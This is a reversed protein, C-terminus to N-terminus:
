APEFHILVSGIEPFASHLAKEIRQSADHIRGLPLERRGEVHAVVALSGGASSVLVEHCDIVDPEELAIRRVAETIDPRDRTVDWGISTSELPEIHTDVRVKGSLESAVSREIQDSLGHAQGLSIDPDAKAHLTVHLGKGGDDEVERILVNHVENVGDIRSAAAQVREVLDSTESAPEVHVVVDAGPAVREIRREVREAIDHARELSSTRGASVTVDTFLRSGSGRVRVRRAEAVGPTAAAAAIIATVPPPARDMLVDVSRKGLRVVGVAVAAAVVLAGIADARNVGARVLVLSALAVLTTGVDAIFNLAGARLADSGQARAAASLMRVRALDVAASLALLAFAYWPTSPNPATGGLREIAEIAVRVVIAALVLTQVFAALNEAKGHGYHHEEDAPKAAIRVAFFLLALAVIDVVSDLAQSLIALSATAIATAVKAVALVCTAALAGIVAREGPLMSGIM